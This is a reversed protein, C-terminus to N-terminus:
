ANWARRKVQWSYRERRTRRFASVLTTFVAPHRLDVVFERELGIMDDGFLVPALRDGAIEREGAESVVVM